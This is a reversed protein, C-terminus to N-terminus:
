RTSREHRGRCNSLGSTAVRSKLYVVHATTAKQTRVNVHGQLPPERLVSRVLEIAAPDVAECRNTKTPSAEPRVLLALGLAAAFLLGDPDPAVLGVATSTAAVALIVAPRPITPGKLGSQQGVATRM